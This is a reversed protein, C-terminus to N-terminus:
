HLAFDGKETYPLIVRKLTLYSLFPTILIRFYKTLHMNLIYKKLIDFSFIPTSPSCKLMLNYLLVWRLEASKALEQFPYLWCGKNNVETNENLLQMYKLIYYKREDDGGM